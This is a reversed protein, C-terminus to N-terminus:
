GPGPVPVNLKSKSSKPDKFRADLGWFNKKGGKEEAKEQKLQLM